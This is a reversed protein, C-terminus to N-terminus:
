VNQKNIYDRTKGPFDTIIGDLQYNLANAIQAETNVTWSYFRYGRKKAEIVDEHDLWNIWPHLSYADVGAVEPLKWHHTTRLTYLIGVKISPELEKIKVLSKHNFSSIIVHQTRSTKRLLEVIAEEMGEGIGGKLEINIFFDLPVLEFVQELTPVFADPYQNIDFSANAQYSQIESTLLNKVEGSGNTTRDLTEDHIVVIQKDKSLHVDLEFGECGQELALKFAALTNEPAEGAAGRHAIILPRKLQSM